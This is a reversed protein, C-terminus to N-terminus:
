ILDEFMVFNVPKVKVYGLIDSFVLDVTQVEEIVPLLQFVDEAGEMM